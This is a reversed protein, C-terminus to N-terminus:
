QSQTNVIMKQVDQFNDPISLDEFDITAAEEDYVSMNSFDGSITDIYKLSGVIEKTQILTNIKDVEEQSFYHAYPQDYGLNDTYVGTHIGIINNSQKDKYKFRITAGSIGGERPMSHDFTKGKEIDKKGAHGTAECLTTGCSKPYGWMILNTYNNPRLEKLAFLKPFEELPREYPQEVELIAIDKNKFAISKKTTFYNDWNESESESSTKYLELSDATKGEICHKATIVYNPSIFTFTCFDKIQGVFEAEPPFPENSTIKKFELEDSYSNHISLFLICIFYIFKNM